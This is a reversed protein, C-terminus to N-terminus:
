VRLPGTRESRLRIDGNHHVLEKHSTPGAKHTYMKPPVWPRLRPKFASSGGNQFEEYNKFSPGQMNM